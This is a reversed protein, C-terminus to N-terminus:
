VCKCDRTIVFLLYMVAAAAIALMVLMRRQLLSYDNVDIMMMMATAMAETHTLTYPETHTYRDNYPLKHAHARSLTNTITTSM